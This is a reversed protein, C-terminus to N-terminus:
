ITAVQYGLIVRLYHFLYGRPSRPFSSVLNLHNKLYDFTTEIKSRMKLLFYQWKTLLKKNQKYHPPTMVITGYKDYIYDNMAKGVYTGDGVAIKTNENLLIPEARSDHVDAATFVLGCLRGQPDISAHLKFGYHWGQWNKGFAALGKCVKHDDARQLKCVELMTSDMFRISAEDLLLSRIAFILLPIANLCQDVFASYHPIHKFDKQHYLLLWNHLDKITKSRVTLGNWVLACILESDAMKNPRGARKEEMPVLDDVMVYLDTIFNPQLFLM